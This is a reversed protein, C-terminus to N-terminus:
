QSPQSKTNTEKMNKEGGKRETTIDALSKKKYKSIIIYKNLIAAM